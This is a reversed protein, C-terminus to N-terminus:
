FRKYKIVMPEMCNFHVVYGWVGREEENSFNILSFSCVVVHTADRHLHAFIVGHLGNVKYLSNLVSRM